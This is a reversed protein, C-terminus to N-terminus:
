LLGGGTQIRPWTLGAWAGRRMEQLDMKVNDKM